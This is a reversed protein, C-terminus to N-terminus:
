PSSQRNVSQLLLRQICECMNVFEGAPLVMQHFGGGFLCVAVSAVMCGRVWVTVFVDVTRTCVGVCPHCVPHKSDEEWPGKRLATVM